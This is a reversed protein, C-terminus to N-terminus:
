LQWQLAHNLVLFLKSERERERERETTQDSLSSFVPCPSLLWHLLQWWSMTMYVARCKNHSIVM